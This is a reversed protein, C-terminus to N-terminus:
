TPQWVFFHRRCALCEFRSLERLSEPPGTISFDVADAVLGFSWENASSSFALLEQFSRPSGLFKTAGGCCIPWDTGQMFLAIGLPTVNLSAEIHLLNAEGGCARNLAARFHPDGSVQDIRGAKICTACAAYVEGDDDPGLRDAPDALCGRVGYVPARRGCVQCDPYEGPDEARLAEDAILPFVNGM